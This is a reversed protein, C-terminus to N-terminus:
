VGTFGNAPAVPPVAVQRAHDQYNNHGHGAEKLQKAGSRIFSTRRLAEAYGVTLLFVAPFHWILNPTFISRVTIVALVVVGEIALRYALDPKVPMFWIRRLLIFWSRLLAGAMLLFGPAGLGLLVEFWTSLVSSAAEGMKFLQDGVAPGSFRAGAYGGFGTLPSQLFAEWAVAWVDTRGSLSAFYKPDQKRMFFEMFIDGAPTLYLLLGFMATALMVFRARVAFFLILILGVIMGTTGSRGQALVFAPLTFVMVVVYFVKHRVALLFRLFAVVILIACIEALGNSDVAPLVGKLQVGMFGVEPILADGRWILVGLWVTGVLAILMLWTVDFFSKFDEPTRLSAVIAAVLAVDIFYEVSKYLTWLPYVSWITSAVSLLACGTLLGIPGRFLFKSWILGAVTVRNLLLFAVLGVLAFRLLAMLDLPNEVTSQANRTRFVLGSIFLLFWLGHWVCLRSAVAKLKAVASPLAFVVLSAVPLLVFFLVVTAKTGWLSVLLTIMLGIMLGALFTFFNPHTLTTM